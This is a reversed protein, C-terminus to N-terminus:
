SAVGVPPTSWKRLRRQDYRYQREQRRGDDQCAQLQYADYSLWFQTGNLDSEIEGGTLLQRLAREIMQERLSRDRIRRINVVGQEDLRERLEKWGAVRVPYIRQRYGEKDDIFGAQRCNKEDRPRSEEYLQELIKAGIGHQAREIRMLQAEMRREERSSIRTGM